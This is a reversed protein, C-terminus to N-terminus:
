VGALNNPSSRKSGEAGTEAEPAVGPDNVLQSERSSNGTTDEANLELPFLFLDNEWSGEPTSQQKQPEVRSELRNCYPSFGVHTM